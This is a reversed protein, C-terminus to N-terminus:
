KYVQLGPQIRSSLTEVGNTEERRLVEFVMRQDWREAIAEEYIWAQLSSGKLLPACLCTKRQDWMAVEVQKSFELSQLRAKGDEGRELLVTFVEEKGWHNSFAVDVMKELDGVSMRPVLEGLDFEKKHETQWWNALLRWNKGSARPFHIKRGEFLLELAKKKDLQNALVREMVGDVLNTSIQNDNEETFFDEIKPLVGAANTKTPKAGAELLVSCCELSKKSFAIHLCTNGDEADRVLDVYEEQEPRRLSRLVVALNEQMDKEVLDWLLNKKRLLDELIERRHSSSRIAEMM